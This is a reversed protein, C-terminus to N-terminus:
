VAELTVAFIHLFMNDPLEIAVLEKSENLTCAYSYVFTPGKHGKNTACCSVCRKLIMIDDFNKHLKTDSIVESGSHSWDYFCLKVEEQSGDAYNCQVFDYKAGWYMFGAFYIEKYKSKPINLIQGDGMVNDLDHNRSFCFPLDNKFYHPKDFEFFGIESIADGGFGMIDSPQKPNYVIKHNFSERLDIM